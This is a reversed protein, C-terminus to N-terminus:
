GRFNKGQSYPIIAGTLVRAYLFPGATKDQLVLYGESNLYLCYELFVYTIM